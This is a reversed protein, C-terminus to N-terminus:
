EEIHNFQTCITKDYTKIKFIINFKYFFFLVCMKSHSYRKEHCLYFASAQMISGKNKIINNGLCADVVKENDIMDVHM